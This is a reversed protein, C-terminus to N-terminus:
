NDMIIPPPDKIGGLPQDGGPNGTGSLGVTQPGNGANSQVVLTATITGAVSPSFTVNIICTANPALSIGCSNNQNFDGSSISISSMLLTTPGANALTISQAASMTSVTQAAFTLSDVSLTAIPVAASGMGSLSVTQPGNSANDQVTLTGSRAGAAAPAFTVNITCSTNPALIVACNNSQSFETNTITIGSLTLPTPGANTLTIVQAPSSTGVTQGAFTVSAPLTATPPPTPGIGTGTLVAVHPSGPSSDQVTLTGTRQGSATPTFTVNVTCSTNAALLNGCNNTQSFDGTPPLISSISLSSPGGNTLTIPLPDSTTGVMQGAFTPPSLTVTAGANFLAAQNPIAPLTHINGALFNALTGLDQVDIVGTLAVDAAAPDFTRINGALVNALILLDSVTVSNDFSLDGYRFIALQVENSASGSGPGIVKIPAKRSATLSAAPIIATLQNANIFNTAVSAGAIQVTSDAPFFSGNVIV